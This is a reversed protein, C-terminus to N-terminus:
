GSDSANQGRTGVWKGLIWELIIMGHIGLDELHDREKVNESCFKITEVKIAGIGVISEVCKLRWSKNMKIINSSACLDRLEESHLRRSGGAVEERKPGFIRWLVRNEFTWLRRGERLTLSWTECGCLAVILIIIKYM